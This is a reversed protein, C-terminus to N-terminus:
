DGEKLSMLALLDAVSENTAIKLESVKDSLSDLDDDSDDSETGFLQRMKAFSVRLKKKPQVVLM